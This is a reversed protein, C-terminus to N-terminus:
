MIDATGHRYDRLAVNESTNHRKIREFRRGGSHGLVFLANLDFENLCGCGKESFLKFRLKKGICRADANKINVKKVNLLYKM